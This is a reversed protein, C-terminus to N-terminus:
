RAARPMCGNYCYTGAPCGECEQPSTMDDSVSYCGAGCSYPYAMNPCYARTATPLLLLSMRGPWNRRRSARRPVAEPCGM